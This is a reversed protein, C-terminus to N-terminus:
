RTEKWRTTQVMQQYNEEAELDGFVLDNQQIIKSHCQTCEGAEYDASTLPVHCGTCFNEQMDANASGIGM